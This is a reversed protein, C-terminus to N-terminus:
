VYRRSSTSLSRTHPRAANQNSRLLFGEFGFQQISRYCWIMARQNKAKRTQDVVPAATSRSAPLGYPTLGPSRRSQELLAASRWLASEPSSRSSTACRRRHFYDLSSFLGPPESNLNHCHGITSGMSPWESRCAESPSTRTINRKRSDGSVVAWVHVIPSLNSEGFGPQRYV